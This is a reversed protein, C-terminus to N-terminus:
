RASRIAHVSLSEPDIQFRECSVRLLNNKEWKIGVLMHFLGVYFPVLEKEGMRIKVAHLFFNFSQYSTLAFLNRHAAIIEAVEHFIDIKRFHAEDTNEFHTNEWSM